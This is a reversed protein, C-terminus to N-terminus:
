AAANIIASMRKGQALLGVLSARKGGAMAGDGVSHLGHAPPTPAVLEKHVVYLYHDSSDYLASLEDDALAAVDAETSPLPITDMLMSTRRAPLYPSETNSSSAAVSVASSTRTRSLSDDAGEPIAPKSLRHVVPKTLLAVPMLDIDSVMSSRRSGLKSGTLSLRRNALDPTSHKSGAAGVRRAAKDKKDAELQTKMVELRDLMFHTSRQEPPAHSVSLLTGGLRLVRHVCQVALKLQAAGDATDLCHLCDLTAKDLVLDFYDNPFTLGRVDQMHFHLNPLAYRRRMEEVCQISFDVSHVEARGEAMRWVDVSVDSCGCGLVLVKLLPTEAVSAPHEDVAVSRQEETVSMMRRHQLLRARTSPTGQISAPSPSTSHHHSPHLLPAVYPRLTSFPQYWEFPETDLQYRGDWYSQESYESM